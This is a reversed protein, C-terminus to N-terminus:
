LFIPGVLLHVGSPSLQGYMLSFMLGLSLSPERLYHFLPSVFLPTGWWSTMLPILPGCSPEGWELTFTWTHTHFPGWLHAGWELIHMCTSDLGWMLTCGVLFGELTHIPGVFPHAGSFYNTEMCGHIIMWTIHWTIMWTHIPDLLHV